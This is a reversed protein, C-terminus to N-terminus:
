IDNTTKNDISNQNRADNEMVYILRIDGTYYYAGSSGTKPKGLPNYGDDSEFGTRQEEISKWAKTNPVNVKYIGPKLNIKIPEIEPSFNLDAFTEKTISETNIGLTTKNYIGQFDDTTVTNGIFCVGITELECSNNKEIEELLNKVEQGTVDTGFYSEFASNGIKRHLAYPNTEEKKNTTYSKSPISLAEDIVDVFLPMLLSILICLIPVAVISSNAVIQLIGISKKYISTKNIVVICFPVIFVIAPILFIFGNSSIFISNIFLYVCLIMGLFNVLIQKRRVKKELITNGVQKKLKAKALYFFFISLIFSIALVLFIAIILFNIFSNYFYM